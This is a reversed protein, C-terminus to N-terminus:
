PDRSRGMSFFGYGHDDVAGRSLSTQQYVGVVIPRSCCENGDGILFIVHLVCTSYKEVDFGKLICNGYVYTNDDISLLGTEITM